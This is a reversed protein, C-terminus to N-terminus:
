CCQDSYAGCCGACCGTAGVCTVGPNNCGCALMTGPGFYTHMQVAYGIATFPLSSFGNSPLSGMTVGAAVCTPDATITTPLSHIPTSSIADCSWCNCSGCTPPACSCIAFVNAVPFLANALIFGLATFCAFTVRNM